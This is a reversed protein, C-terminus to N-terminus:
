SYVAFSIRSDVPVKIGMTYQRCLLSINMKKKDIELHVFVSPESPELLKHKKESAKLVETDKSIVRREDQRQAESLSLAREMM